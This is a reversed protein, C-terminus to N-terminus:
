PQVTSTTSGHGTRPSAGTPWDTACGDALWAAAAVAAFVADSGNVPETDEDLLTVEVFPMDAARLVGFSRITLDGIVGDADVALGESRVWGLAMHAAGIAYSRLVVADLLRGCRLAVRLTGDSAISAEAWAGNPAVVSVVPEAGDSMGARADLVARLVVAEAWGAGRIAVSTAPGPLDVEEIEVEPLVEAIVAAVGPTRAVRLIGSGDARLGAAIPPRKPGLRVVDERSLVARVPRGHEEALRRAIEGVLASQKAGFAGGNATASVPEGGPECWSADTELYAPEVWSTRLTLDWDGPPLELPPQAEVTGHRGQIKGALARAEPVSAAVAWQAPDDVSEADARPMAVLAGAPATDEAFGGRGLAIDAGVRQSARGEITARLSAADLDRDAPLSVEVGPDAELAIEWAEGITQWGTCRCLHAALARDVAARDDAATGRARLGELRCIIGPTCFGCQSAGTALFAESWRTREEDSLGDVTTITRGAVRRAPTVCAVRPAGDVLVTCCGCQGQPNCGAKAARVGLQGRLAALLSFGNDIVEVQRGDVVFQLRPLEPAPRDSM